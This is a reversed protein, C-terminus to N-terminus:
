LHQLLPWDRVFMEHPGALAHANDGLAQSWARAMEKKNKREKGPCQLTQPGMRILCAGLMNCTPPVPAFAM